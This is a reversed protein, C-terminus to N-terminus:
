EDDNEQVRPLTVYFTTGEGPESEVWIDGGHRHAIRDCIALGMGSGGETDHGQAFIDFLSDQQDAPIGVGDDAVSFTVHKEDTTAGISITSAGGHIAANKLLNQFLQSVQEDDAAVSPLPEREITVGEDELFLELQDLTRDLVADTDVPEFSEGHTQIRSYELLGDIMSKMRAAGDVAYHMYEQAEEDLEDGYESDLLHVYSSVMRLPEQLDHSAVYAFQQLAENSRELEDRYARLQREREVQTMAATATSALIDLLHRETDSFEEVAPSGVTLLGHDDLPLCVLTGLPTEPASPNALAQYDDVVTTQGTEFIEKEDTGAGFSPLEVAAEADGFTAAEATAGVPRLVDDDEDYSWMAALPRGVVESAIETVKAAVEQETEAYLLDQTADSLRRVRQEKRKLDTVNRAVGVVQTLDGADDFVPQYWTEFVLEDLRQTVRVEEGDLARDAAAVIEPFDGYVDFVSLGEFDGPEVGLAELGKGSSHTFIGEPDLTFLVVPLNDVIAQLQHTRDRWELERERHETIDQVYALVRPEGGVTAAELSVDVWRMTGDPGSVRWEVAAHGEDAATRILDNAEENTYSPPSFDGVTMGVVAEQEVGLMEATAANADLVEGTEPDHVFVPDPSAEFIDRYPTETEESRVM